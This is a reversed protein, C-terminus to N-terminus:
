YTHRISLLGFFLRPNFFWGPIFLIYQVIICILLSIIHITQLNISYRWGNQRGAIWEVFFFWKVCIVNLLHLIWFRLMQLESRISSSHKPHSETSCSTTSPSSFIWLWWTLQSSRNFNALVFGGDLVLPLSESSTLIIDFTKPFSTLM